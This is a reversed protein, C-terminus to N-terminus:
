KPPAARYQLQSAAIRRSTWDFKFDITIGAQQQWLSKYAQKNEYLFIQYTPSFSLSPWVQFSYKATVLHQLRTDTSNDGSNNFYFEGQNELSASMSKGTPFNFMSHWYVGTRFRSSQATQVTSTPTLKTDPTLGSVCKQLSQTASPTCSLVLAGNTFFDFRQFAGFARGGEIGAEFYSKQNYRGIAIRDTLTHVRPLFFQLPTASPIQNATLSLSREMAFPQTDYHFYTGIGSHPLKRQGPIHFRPGASLTFSDTSQNPNRFGGTDTFSANYLLGETAVFDWLSHNYTYSMEQDTNWSHSRPTTAQSNSVGGFTKNLNAQSDSHRQLTFGISTKDLSFKWTPIQEQAWTELNNAPKSKCDQQGRCKKFLFWDKWGEQWTNGPLPKPKAMALEDFYHNKSEIDPSCDIAQKHQKFQEQLQKCVLASVTQLKEQYLSRPPGPVSSDILDPYGTDGLAIYDTTAVSYLRNPDLPLDNILYTDKYGDAKIGLYALGRGTEKSLSLGSDDNDDYQRSRKMIAQLVSGRVPIVTLIDGKWLFADLISQWTHTGVLTKVEPPCYAPLSPVTLVQKLLCIALPIKLYFDRKQILAVDAESEKLMAYLTADQLAEQADDFTPNKKPPQVLTEAPLVGRVASYLENAAKMSSETKDAVDEHLRRRSKMLAARDTASVCEDCIAAGNPLRQAAAGSVVYQRQHRDLESIRLLRVPDGIRRSDQECVTPDDTRRSDQECATPDGSWTPDWAPPPVAIFSPLNCQSKDCDLLKDSKSLEDPPPSLTPDMVTIQNRTFQQPDYESVVVDFHHKGTLHAAILNAKAADMQALLIKKFTGTIGPQDSWADYCEDGAAKHGRTGCNRLYDVLQKLSKAPDLIELSTDYKKAYKDDGDVTRWVADLSGIKEQLDPDVVGFIAVNSSEACKSDKGFSKCKVLYPFPDKHTNEPPVKKLLNPDAYQFLPNGVRFRSCTPRTKEDTKDDPSIWVCAKYNGPALQKLPLQWYTKDSAALKAAPVLRNCGPDVQFKSGEPQEEKPRAWCQSSGQFKIDLVSGKLSATWDLRDPDDVPGSIVVEVSDPDDFRGEVEALWPLITTRDAPFSINPKKSSDSIDFELRRKKSDPIPDHDSHWSTKLLLNAALMQVPHYTRLYHPSGKDPISALFRALAQLRETGFYFDEKGPVIADYGAYALFCGVNDTPIVALGKRLNALIASPDNLWKGPKPDPDWRFQDKAYQGSADPPPAFIRSPLYLAFNDGTGVFLRKEYEYGRVANLLQEGEYSIDSDQAGDPCPHKSLDPIGSQLSPLRFYGLLRGTFLINLENAQTPGPPSAERDDARVPLVGFVLSLVLILGYWCVRKAM